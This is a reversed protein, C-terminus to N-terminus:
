TMNMAMCDIGVTDHMFLSVKRLRMKPIRFLKPLIETSSLDCVIQLDMISNCRDLFLKWSELNSRQVTICLKSTRPAIHHKTLLCEPPNSTECHLNPCHLLIQAYYNPHDILWHTNSRTLRSGCNMLLNAYKEIPIGDGVLSLEQLRQCHTRLFDIIANWDTTQINEIANARSKADELRLSTLTNSCSRLVDLLSHMEAFRKLDM